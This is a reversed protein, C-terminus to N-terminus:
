LAHMPNSVREVTSRRPPWVRWPAALPVIKQGALEAEAVPQADEKRQCLIVVQKPKLGGEVILRHLAQRVRDDVERRHRGGSGPGPGIVGMASSKEGALASVREAIPKTNRVNRRLRFTRGKPEGPPVVVEPEVPLM